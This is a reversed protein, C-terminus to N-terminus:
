AAPQRPRAALFAAMAAAPLPRSFLYGQGEECGFSRLLEAQEETEVGEAVVKLKLGGALAIITTVINRGERGGAMGLVFSRDIKLSDVPLRSLYGLSSYGTGFDDIAVSVGMGRLISLKRTSDEVDRMVLGETIELELWDPHDGGREIEDIMANVFDGSQLQLASVNVAVRPVQLGAEAWTNLDRFAQAVAWRGVEVILGIEELLPIFRGPPVLEGGPVQWRILAEAGALAGDALRLKPQYHLVFQRQEVARRLRNELALSEAVRANMDPAYFVVREASSKGRRLAAEANRMLIDADRGDDPYIAVGARCAVRLEEGRVDFPASFSAAIVAELARHVEAATRAGRLTLGFLDAGVRAVSEGAKRLREAVGHLLEDGVQRGLTENVQRFRELDLLVVAILRADGGRQRLSHSLRDHFLSRNPLGTIPDYYALFDLRESKHLADLAYSVDAALEELLGAEDGHFFGAEGSNLVLVGATTGEVVLPLHMASLIGHSVAAARLPNRSPERLDETVEPKGGLLVRVAVSEALSPDVDTALEIADFFEGYAGASAISRLRRAAVEHWAVWAVPLGGVDVAIRCVETLLAGRDRNRVMAANIASQMEKVRSLRAIRREQDKRLSIDDIMTVLRSQGGALGHIPRGSMAVWVRSGDKRLFEVEYGGVVGDRKLISLYDERARPDVYIGGVRGGMTVIWEEVSAYGLICALAPNASLLAGDLTTMSIGVPVNDFVLRFDADSQLARAVLRAQGIAIALQAAVEAAIEVQEAPVDRAPGGFGLGGILEGGFHMPVVRYWRVGADLLIGAERRQPLVEVELLQTEGRKLGDLDGMMSMPYRVDPSVLGSRRGVAALWEADNRKLDFLNVVVRVSGLLDRLRPLVALAVEAPSKAAIIALDIDHLVALRDQKTALRAQTRLREGANWNLFFLGLSLISLGLLVGLPLLLFTRAATADARNRRRELAIHEELEMDKVLREVQVGLAPYVQGLPSPEGPAPLKGARIRERFDAIIQESMEIRKEHLQAIRELRERQSNSDVSRQLFQIGGLISAKTHERADLTREDRTIIYRGASITFDALFANLRQVEKLVELMRNVQVADTRMQSTFQYSIGATVVMAAIGAAFGATTLRDLSWALGGEARLLLVIGVAILVLGLAAYAAIRSYSLFRFEVLREFVHGALAVGGILIVTMALAAVVPGRLRPPLPQAMAALALGVLLFSFSTPPSMRGPVAVRLSGITDRVLWQDIGANWGFLDQSLTLAGLLAVVIGAATSLWRRAPFAECSLAVLAFVALLMAVAANARMPQGFPLANRLLAIDLLWGTLVSAAILAACFGLLLAINRPATMTALSSLRVTM